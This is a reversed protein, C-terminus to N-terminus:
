YPGLFDDAIKPLNDVTEIESSKYSISQKAVSFIKTANPYHIDELPKSVPAPSDAQGLRVLPSLLAIGSELVSAGIESGLGFNTWSTDVVMLRKTKRVSNLITEIDLPQISRIDIVEINIGLESAQDAAILSEQVCVSSAVITLDKGKKAISAGELPTAQGVEGKVEYLNRHELIVVPDPSNLASLLMGKADRASAPMVVRLGPFHALVSQISQSHTAGQGWGRGIISRIVVPMNSARGDFMYHWKSLVNLMQDLALFMFDNRAHIVVPRIGCLSAGAAIGTLANEMAPTDIVRSPGFLSNAETTTGFVGSSYDLGIGFLHISSDIKMAEVTAESIAEAYSLIKM